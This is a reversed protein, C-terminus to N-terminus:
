LLYRIQTSKMVQKKWIKVFTDFIGHFNVFQKQQLIAKLADIKDIVKVRHEETGSSITVAVM